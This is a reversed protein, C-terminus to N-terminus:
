AMSDIKAKALGALSDKGGHLAMEYYALNQVNQWSTTQLIGVTDFGTKAATHYEAKSTALWLETAAWLFEDAMKSDEYPGSGGTERPERVAPNKVAWGWAKEARALYEKARAADIKTLLRSAQAASAAFTLTATTSKGIVFRPHKTKTPMEMGDWKLSAVKFFLGGDEDQMRTMWDIEWICEDVLDSRGNGSEPINLAKDPFLKPYLEYAQLLIGVSVAGNLTYKGYDGADYWGGTASWTGERGAEYLSLGTDPHGGKRQWIGAHKAPIEVSARQFYFAKVADNLTGSYVGAGIKFVDTKTKGVVLTYTGPRQWGSFDGQSVQEDSPEWKGVPVLKAKLVAKGSADVLEFVSDTPNAVVFRKTGFPAYGLHNWRIANPVPPVVPKPPKAAPCGKCSDELSWEGIQVQFIGAADVRKKNAGMDSSIRVEAVRSWDFKGSIEQKAKDDWWSGQDDFETLPITATKWDKALKAFNKVALRVQVKKSPGDSDDDMLGVLVEEEGKGGRIRIKLSGQNRISTLDLAKPLHLTWGSYENDDGSYTLIKGEKTSAIEGKTKGGYPYSWAGPSTGLELINQSAISANLGALVLLTSIM